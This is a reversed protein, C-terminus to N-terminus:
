EWIISPQHVSVLAQTNGSTLFVLNMAIIDSAAAATADLTVKTEKYKGDDNSGWTISTSGENNLGFQSPDASVPLKNWTVDYKLTGTEASSLSLMRLKMTGSPLSTPPMQFRLSWTADAALSAGVGMGEDYRSNSGPGLYVHWFSGGQTVPVISNPFLPGGAM